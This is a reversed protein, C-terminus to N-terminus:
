WSSESEARVDRDTNSPSQPGSSGISVARGDAIRGTTRAQRTPPVAIDRARARCTATALTTIADVSPDVVAVRAAADPASETRHADLTAPPSIRALPPHQPASAEAENLMRPGRLMLGVLAAAAVLVRTRARQPHNTQPQPWTSNFLRVLEPSHWRLRREIDCLTERERESLM